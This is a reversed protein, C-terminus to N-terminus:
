YVSLKSNKKFLRNGGFRWGMSVFGSGAKKEGDSKYGYFTSFLGRYGFGIRFNRFEIGAETTGGVKFRCGGEEGEYGSYYFTSNIISM